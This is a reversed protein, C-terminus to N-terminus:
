RSRKAHKAKMKERYIEKSRTSLDSRGSDFKGFLHKGLEYPTKKKPAEKQLRDAIAKRVFESITEDDPLRARLDLELKKGLRVTLTM